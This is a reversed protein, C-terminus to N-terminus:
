HTNGVYLTPPQYQFKHIFPQDEEERIVVIRRCGISTVHDLEPFFAEPDEHIYAEQQNPCVPMDETTQDDGCKRINTWGPEIEMQMM